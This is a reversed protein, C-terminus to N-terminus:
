TKHSYTWRKHSNQIKLKSNPIIRPKAQSKSNNLKSNQIRLEFVGVWVIWFEFNKFEFNGYAVIWFEFNLIWFQWLCYSLVWFECYKGELLARFVLFFNKPQNKKAYSHAVIVNQYLTHQCNNALFHAVIQSSLDHLLPRKARCNRDNQLVVAITKNPLGVTKLVWFRDNQPIYRSIKGLFAVSFMLWLSFFM